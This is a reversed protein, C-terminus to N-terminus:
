EKESIWGLVHKMLFSTHLYTCIYIHIILLFVCLNLHQIHSVMDGSYIMDDLWETMIQENEADVEAQTSMSLSTPFTVPKYGTNVHYLSLSKVGLPLFKPRGFTFANVNELSILYVATALIILFHNLSYIM